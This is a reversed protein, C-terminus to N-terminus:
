AFPSAAPPVRVGVLTREIAGSAITDVLEVV